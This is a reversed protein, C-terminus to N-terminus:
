SEVGEFMSCAPANLKKFRGLTQTWLAQKVGKPNCIRGCMLEIGKRTEVQKCHKCESCFREVM